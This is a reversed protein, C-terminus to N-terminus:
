APRVFVAITGAVPEGLEYRLRATTDSVLVLGSERGMRKLYKLSHAYRGSATLKFDGGKRKETSVAFLGGPNLVRRVGGFLPALDGIYILVDAATVLDFSRRTQKLYKTVESVAVTEYTGRKRARRAMETSLDVGWLKRIMPQFRQGVLGTGCGLDLMDMRPKRGGRVKRVSDYLLRPAQYKLDRVLSDDFHEAFADFHDRVYGDSARKPKRRGGLASIMHLAEPDGPQPRLYRRFQKLATRTDGASHAHDGLWWAADANDPDLAQAEVLLEAGKDFDGDERLKEARKALKEAAAARARRSLHSDRGADATARPKKPAAAARQSAPRDGARKTTAPKAM